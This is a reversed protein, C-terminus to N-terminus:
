QRGGKVLPSQPPIQETSQSYLPDGSFTLPNNKCFCKVGLLCFCIGGVGRTLPPKRAVTELLNEEFM